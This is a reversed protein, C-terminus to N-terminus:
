HAVIVARRRLDHYLKKAKAEYREDLLDQRVSERAADSDSGSRKACVAIMEIGSVTRQPPTLHGVPTRDLMAVLQPPMNASSRTVTNKVAVDPLARALASGAACDTFRARLGEAARMRAPASAPNIMTFVIQRMQYEAGAKAGKKALEARVVKASIDLAKNLARVYGMWAYEAGFHEKIQQESVGARQLAAVLAQPQMKLKEAARGIMAGIEQQGPHIKFKKTEDLKLRDAYIDELVAARSTPRRLVHNLKTRQQLDFDTIPSDNVTAIVELARLPGASLSVGALAAVVLLARASEFKPLIM